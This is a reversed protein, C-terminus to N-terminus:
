EGCTVFNMPLDKKSCAGTEQQSGDALTKFTRCQIEDAEVYSGNVGYGLPKKYAAYCDDNSSSNKVCDDSLLSTILCDGRSGSSTDLVYTGGVQFMGIGIALVISSVYLVFTVFSKM